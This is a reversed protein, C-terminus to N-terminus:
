GRVAQVHRCDSHTLLFLLSPLVAFLVFVQSYFKHIFLAELQLNHGGLMCLVNTYGKYLTPGVDFVNTRRQIFTICNNQTQQAWASNARAWFVM